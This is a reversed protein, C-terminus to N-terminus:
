RMNRPRFYRFRGGVGPNNRRCGPCERPLPYGYGDRRNNVSDELCHECLVLNCCNPMVVNEGVNFDKACIPCDTIGDGENVAREFEEQNRNNIFHLAQNVRNNQENEPERFGLELQRRREAEERGAQVLVQVRERMVFVAGQLPTKLFSLIALVISIKAEWSGSESLLFYRLGKFFLGPNRFLFRADNGIRSLECSNGTECVALFVCVFIKIKFALGKSKKGDKNSSDAVINESDFNDQLDEVSFDDDELLEEVEQETLNFDNMLQELNISEKLKSKSNRKHTNIDEKSDKVSFDDDELLEAVEQETLNFDNMLQELNNNKNIKRKRLKERTNAKEKDNNEKKSVDQKEKKDNFYKKLYKIARLTEFSLWANDLYGTDQWYAKHYSAEHVIQVVAEILKLKTELKENSKAHAFLVALAAPLKAVSTAQYTFKSVDGVPKLISFNLGLFILLSLFRKFYINM